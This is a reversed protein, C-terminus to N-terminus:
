TRSGFTSPTRASTMNSPARGSTRPRLPTEREVGDELLSRQLDAIREQGKVLMAKRQEHEAENLAGIEWLPASRDNAVALARTVPEENIPIIEVAVEETPESM